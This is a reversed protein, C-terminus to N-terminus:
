SYLSFRLYISLILFFLHLHIDFWLLTIRQLNTWLLSSCFFCLCSSLLLPMVHYHTPHQQCARRWEDCVIKLMIKVKCCVCEHEGRGMSSEWMYLHFEYWQLLKSITCSVALICIYTFFYWRNFFADDSM